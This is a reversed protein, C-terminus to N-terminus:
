TARFDNNPIVKREDNQAKISVSCATGSFFAPVTQAFEVKVWVNDEFHYAIMDNFVWGADSYGGYVVMSNKFTVATHQKRMAPVLGGTKVVTVTKANLDYALM